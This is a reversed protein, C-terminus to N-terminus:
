PCWILVTYVLGYIRTSIRFCCFSLVKAASRNIRKAREELFFNHPSRNLIVVPVMDTGYLGALLM